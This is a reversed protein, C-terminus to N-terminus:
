SDTAKGLLEELSWADSTVTDYAVDLLPRLVLLGAVRLVIRRLEDLELLSLPTNARRNAQRYGLWKKLVPYGGLEYRWIERPVNALFINENLYLDGTVDGWETRLSESAGVPREDWRGTAAGYYSYEITLEPQKIAGGDTRCVVALTKAEKGVLKRIAGAPDCLPDLLISIGDGLSVVKDFETKDKAIPIHPWGQLL